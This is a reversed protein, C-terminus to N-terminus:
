GDVMKFFTESDCNQLRELLGWMLEESALLYENDPERVRGYASMLVSACLRAIILDPLIEREASQLTRVSDYGSVVRAATDWPDDSFLMMYAAAVAPEAVTVTHIMDGFDILGCLKPKASNIDDVLLNHENADNHIVSRDLGDLRPVVFRSHRDLHGPVLERRSSDEILQLHVALDLTTTIDWPIRRRAGPHDFGALAGDLDALFVGIEDLMDPSITTLGVLPRGEVFTLMRVWHESGDPFRLRFLSRGSDSAVVRPLRPDPSHEALHELVAVQMAVDNEDRAGPTVKLVYRKGDIATVLFNRDLEATLESATGVIGFEDAAVRAAQSADVSPRPTLM